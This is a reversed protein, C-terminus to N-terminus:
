YLMKNKPVEIVPRACTDSNKAMFNGVIKSAGAVTWVRRTDASNPTELWFGYLGTTLAFGTNEYLFECKNLEGNTFIGIQDFDCGTRLEKATLFRASYGSYSFATPLTGASTTSSDYTDKFEALIARSTNKLTINSWQTTTPLHKKM